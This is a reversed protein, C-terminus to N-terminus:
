DRVGFYKLKPIGMTPAWGSFTRKAKFHVWIEHNCEFYTQIYTM